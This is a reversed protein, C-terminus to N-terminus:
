TSYRLLSYINPGKERENYGLTYTSLVKFCLINPSRERERTLVYFNM